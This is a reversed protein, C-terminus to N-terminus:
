FYKITERLLELGIEGSKEPHFQFGIINSKFIVSAIKKEYFDSYGIIMKKDKLNAEYSHVFYFKQSDFKDLYNIDKNKKFFVNKWGINPLKYEKKAKIKEVTGDILNLGENSGDEFGKKLLIQMGLCIGIIGKKERNSNNIIQSLNNKKLLKAAKSFSGVGPLFLLDYNIDSAESFYYAKFGVKEISNKLSYINGLGYDLICIKKKM